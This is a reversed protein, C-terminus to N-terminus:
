NFHYQDVFDTIKKTSDIYHGMQNGLLLSHLNM